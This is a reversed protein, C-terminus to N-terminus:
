SIEILAAGINWEYYLSYLIMSSGILNMFYYTKTDSKLHNLQLLFYAFTLIIAGFIGIIQSFYEM